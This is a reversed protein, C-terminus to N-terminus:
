GSPSARAGAGGLAARLRREYDDSEGKFAGSQMNQVRISLPGRSPADEVAHRRAHRRPKACAAALLAGGRLAPTPVVAPALAGAACRRAVDRGAASARVRERRLRM